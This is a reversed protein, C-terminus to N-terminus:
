MITLDIATDFGLIQGHLDNHTKKQRETADISIEAKEEHCTEFPVDYWCTVM